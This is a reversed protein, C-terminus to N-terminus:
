FIAQLLCPLCLQSDNTFLALAFLRPGGGPKGGGDVDDVSSISGGLM